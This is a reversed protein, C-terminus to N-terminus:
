VGWTHRRLKSAYAGHNVALNSGYDCCVLVSKLLGWNERKRDSLFSPLVSSAVSASLPEVRSQILVIGSSSIDLCPALHKAYPTGVLDNWTQWERVNQFSGGGQEIKVVKTPDLACAFVKRAIGEGLLPGCMVNLFETLVHRSLM